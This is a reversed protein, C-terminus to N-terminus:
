ILVHHSFYIQEMLFYSNEDGRKVSIYTHTLIHTNPTHSHTHIHTHPHTHTHPPTHTLTYRAYIHAHM